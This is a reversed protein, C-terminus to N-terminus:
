SKLLTELKEWFFHDPISALYIFCERYEEFYRDSIVVDYDNFDTIASCYDLKIKISSNSFRDLIVSGILELLNIQKSSYILIRKQKQEVEFFDRRIKENILIFYFIFESRISKSSTLLELEMLKNELFIIKEASQKRLFSFNIEFDKLFVQNINGIMKVKKYLLGILKAQEETELYLKHHTLYSSVLQNLKEKMLINEADNVSVNAELVEIYLLNAILLKTYTVDYKEELSQILQKKELFFTYAEDLQKLYPKPFEGLSDYLIHHHANRMISVYTFIDLYLFEVHESISKLHTEVFKNIETFLDKNKISIEENGSEIIIIQLFKRITYEDGVLQVCEGLRKLLLPLGKAKLRSNIFKIKHLISSESLYLDDALQSISLGGLGIKLFIKLNDSESLIERAVLSATKAQNIEFSISNKEYHIYFDTIDHNLENIYKKITNKSINLENMIEEVDIQPGFLDILYLFNVKKYITTELFM